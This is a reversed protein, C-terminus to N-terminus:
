AVALIERRRDAEAVQAALGGALSMAPAFGLEAQARSTSASTDRVDGLKAGEFELLLEHGVVAGLADLVELLPRPNASGINYVSGPVGREASAITGAVADGVYTFDRLQRGDGYIPVRQGAAAAEIFRAIAMDPRQRPGYVTFYRLGVVDLGHARHYAGAMVETMVKTAGYPSIPATPEEETVPLVRADGYVSSSSAYVVKVDRGVCADFLAKTGLINSRVYDDFDAWSERIGPRAALHFVVEAGDVLDDLGGDLLDREHLVFDPHALPAALNLELLARSYQASFADLGRVSHDLALLAESLQSGIFGAAGTVVVPRKSM